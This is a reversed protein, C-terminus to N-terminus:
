YEWGDLELDDIDSNLLKTHSRELRKLTKKCDEIRKISEKLINLAQIEEEGKIEKKAKTLLTKLKTM